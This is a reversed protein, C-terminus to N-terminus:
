LEVVYNVSALHVLSEGHIKAKKEAQAYHYISLGFIYFVASSICQCYLLISFTSAMLKYM